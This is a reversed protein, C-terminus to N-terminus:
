QDMDALCNSSNSQKSRLLPALGHAFFDMLLDLVQGDLDELQVLLALILACDIDGNLHTIQNPFLQSFVMGGKGAAQDVQGLQILPYLVVRGGFRQQPLRECDPLLDQTWRIGLQRLAYKRTVNSFHSSFSSRKKANTKTWKSRSGWSMM